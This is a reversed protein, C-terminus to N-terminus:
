SNKKKNLNFSINQIPTDENRHTRKLREEKKQYYLIRFRKLNDRIDKTSLDTMNRLCELIQNKNYKRGGDEFFSEWNKMVELIALGVREENKKLFKEEKPLATNMSILEELIKVFENFFESTFSDEEDIQYSYKEDEEINVLVADYNERKTIEDQEKIRKGLLRHKIITGYYSYAKTGQSPDFKDIKTHLFSLTDNLLEEFSMEKSYLNYRNIISEVMKYLPEKLFEEYIKNKESEDFSSLYLLTAEEQEVDFYRKHKRKRGRKNM